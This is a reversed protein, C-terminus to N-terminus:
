LHTCLYKNHRRAYQGTVDFLDDLNERYTERAVDLLECQKAKIAYIKANRALLGGCRGMNVDEHINRDIAAVVQGFADDYLDSSSVDRLKKLLLSTAGDLAAHVNALAHIISRMTLLQSIRKEINQDQSVTKSDNKSVENEVLEKVASLRNEIIVRDSLPQLISSKLLRKGMPTHCSDLLSLMTVGNTNTASMTLELDKATQSEIFMTGEHEQYTISLSHPSYIVAQVSELYNARLIMLAADKHADEVIFREIDELGKVDNFQKRQMSKINVPKHTELLEAVLLSKSSQDTSTKGVSTNCVLITCPTDTHNNIAALGVQHTVDRSELLAISWENSIASIADDDDMALSHTHNKVSIARISHSPDPQANMEPLKTSKRDM